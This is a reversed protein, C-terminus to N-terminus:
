NEQLYKIMNQLVNPNDQVLGLVRNGYRRILAFRRWRRKTEKPLNKRAQKGHTIWHQHRCETCREGLGDDLKAREKRM